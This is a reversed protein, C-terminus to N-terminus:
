IINELDKKSVLNLYNKYNHYFDKFKLKNFSKVNLSLLNRNKRKLIMGIGHDAM